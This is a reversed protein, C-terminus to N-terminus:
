TILGFLGAYFGVFTVAFVASSVAALRAIDKKVGAYRLLWTTLVGGLAFSSFLFGATRGTRLWRDGWRGRRAEGAHAVWGALRSPRVARREYARVGWMAIVYSGAGYLAAFVAFAAFAGVLHVAAGIPAAWLLDDWLYLAVAGSVGVAAVAAASVNRSVTTATIQDVGAV